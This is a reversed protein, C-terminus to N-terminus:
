LYQIKRTSQPCLNPTIQPLIEVGKAQKLYHLCDRKSLKGTLQLTDAIEFILQKNLGLFASVVKRHDVLLKQYSTWCIQSSSTTKTLPFPYDTLGNVLLRYSTENWSKIDSSAGTFRTGLFAETSLDGALLMLCEWTLFDKSPFSMTQSSAHSRVYGAVGRFGNGIRVELSRPIADQSLCAHLILHGAEHLSIIRRQEESFAPVLSHFIAAHSQALFTKRILASTVLYGFLAIMVAVFSATKITDGWIFLILDMGFFLVATAPISWQFITLTSALLVGLRRGRQFTRKANILSLILGVGFLLAGSAQFILEPKM